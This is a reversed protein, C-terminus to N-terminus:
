LYGDSATWSVARKSRLGDYFNGRRCTRCAKTAGPKLGAHPELPGRRWSMLTLRAWPLTLARGRATLALHSHGTRAFYFHRTGDPCNKSSQRAPQHSSRPSFHAEFQSGCPSVSHRAIIGIFPKTEALYTKWPTVKQANKAHAKTRSVGLVAEWRMDAAKRVFDRQLASPTVKPVERFPTTEGPIGTNEISHASNRPRHLADRSHRETKEQIARFGCQYQPNTSPASKPRDVQTKPTATPEFPVTVSTRVMLNSRWSSEPM